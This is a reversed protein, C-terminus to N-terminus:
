QRPEWIGNSNQTLTVAPRRALEQELAVTVADLGVTSALRPRKCYRHLEIGAAIVLWVLLFPLAALYLTLRLLLGILIITAHIWLVVLVVLVIGFLLHM